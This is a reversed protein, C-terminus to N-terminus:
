PELALLRPNGSSPLQLIPVVKDVPNSGQGDPGLYVASFAIPGSAGPVSRIGKISGFEQAVAAATAGDGALRIGTIGTLAADYGMMAYGDDASAVPFHSAFAAQFRGFGLRGQQIVAPLIGKYVSGAEPQDWEDPSAEGAYDLTVPGRLASGVDPTIPMSTGDDGTLITVPFPCRRVDLASILTALEPGRGAFLVVNPRSACIDAALQVIEVTVEGSGDADGATNYTDIGIISHTKDPFSRLFDSALTSDYLDAQNDDAVVMATRAAPKIYALAANVQHAESPAVRVLDPVNDFADSTITSGIVPIGNATLERVEALTATSSTEIGAVAVLRQAAADGEIVKDTTLYGAAGAGSSAVLLQILPTGSGLNHQNAYYQAAFAGELQEAAGKDSEADDAAAVPLVYAVSVYRDGSSRVRRDEAEILGDVQELSPAFSYSGDTVGVCEGAARLVVTPGSDFCTGTRDAIAYPTQPGAYALDAFYLGTGALAGALCFVASAAAKAPWRLDPKGPTM